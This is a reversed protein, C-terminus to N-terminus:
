ERLSEPITVVRDIVAGEQESPVRVNPPTSGTVRFVPVKPPTMDGYRDFSFSGLLGDKARTAQIQKLVSARSGDSRAIADLVVETAEAAQAAYAGHARGGFDLVFRDLAPTSDLGDPPLALGTIYLGRAAPGAREIVDPVLGFYESALIPLRPGLRARLAKLMRDGGTNVDGQILVGDAGSAGVRTALASFRVDAFKASGAVGVGLRAAARRFTREYTDSGVDAESRLLYVRDLGLQAALVALAVYEHDDRATLRFFHREGTPYYVGPEGRQEGVDPDVLRGGRTLNPQSASPTVIALPGGPAANLIALQAQACYSNQPGIVAVLRDARAYANANAACRRQEYSGAQATADDCSQYGVAFRGARFDNQKLVFRITDV